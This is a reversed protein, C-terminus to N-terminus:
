IRPTTQMYEWLAKNLSANTIKMKRNNGYEFHFQDFRVTGNVIAQLGNHLTIVIESMGYKNVQRDFTATYTKSNMTFDIQKTM